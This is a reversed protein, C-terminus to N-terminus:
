GAGGLYAVVAVDGTRRLQCLLRAEPDGPALIDLMEQEGEDPPAVAGRVRSLCTGCIGTRCGFLVPSNRVSLHEALGEGLPVGVAEDRDFFTVRPIM